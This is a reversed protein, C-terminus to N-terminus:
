NIIIIIIIVLVASEPQESAKRLGLDSKGRPV